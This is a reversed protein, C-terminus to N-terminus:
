VRAHLIVGIPNAKLYEYSFGCARAHADAHKADAAKIILKGHILEFSAGDALRIAQEFTLRGTSSPPKHAATLDAFMEEEDRVAQQEIVGAM